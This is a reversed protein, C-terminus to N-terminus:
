RCQFVPTAVHEWAPYQSCPRLGRPTHQGQLPRALGPRQKGETGEELSYVRAAGSDWDGRLCPLMVRGAQFPVFRDGKRDHFVGADACPILRGRRECSRHLDMLPVLYVPNIIGTPVLSYRFLYLSFLAVPRIPRYLLLPVASGARTAMPIRCSMRHNRNTPTKKPKPQMIRNPATQRGQTM